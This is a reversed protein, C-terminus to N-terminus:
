FPTLQMTRPAVTDHLHSLSPLARQHSSPAGPKVPGYPHPPHQMTSGRVRAHLPALKAPMESPLWHRGEAGGAAGRGRRVQQMVWRLAVNAVSVGHKDAVAKLAALLERWLEQGGFQKTM